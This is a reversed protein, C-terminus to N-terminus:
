NRAVKQKFELNRSFYKWQIYGFTSTRKILGDIIQDIENEIQLFRDQIDRPVMKHRSLQDNNAEPALEFVDLCKQALSECQSYLELNMLVKELWYTRFPNQQNGRHIQNYRCENKLALLIAVFETQKNKGNLISILFWGIISVVLGAFFINYAEPFFNLFVM